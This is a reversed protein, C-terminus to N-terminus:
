QYLAALQEGIAAYSFHAQAETAIALRNFRYQNNAVELIAKTLAAEDQPSIIIGNTTNIVEAVGGVDTSIVPLGCCLSELVVCPMNEYNSFLIFAESIQMRAALVAQPQMGEFVVVDALGLQHALVIVSEPAFGLLRLRLQPVEQYAREFARLLGEPNKPHNMTSAHLFWFEDQKSVFAKYHFINTDVVNLIPTFPKNAHLVQQLMANGLYRSVPAFVTAHKLTTRVMWKFWVNRKEFADLAYKNYIGWHETLAYPLKYRWKLWLAAVGIKVPVHVHVWRPLGCQQLLENVALYICHMYRIQLTIKQWINGQEVAKLYYIYETLQEKQNVERVPLHTDPPVLQIHIVNVTLYTSLAEAHRQIFDGNYRDYSNPYWSALWLIYNAKQPM